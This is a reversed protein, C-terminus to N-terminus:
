ETTLFRFSNKDLAMKDINDKDPIFGGKILAARRPNITYDSHHTHFVYYYHGTEDKFFDGHGPGNQRVMDKDLIPNGSYKKWPGLPNPSTAYGLAYYISKFGNASYFLYYLGEHELVTPGETVTWSKGALNEWTQGHDVANVCSTLTNPKIDTLDDKLAAVYIRNGNHLRVFYLYKDGNDDIFVFPDIAKDSTSIPKKVEQVFPGLPGDSKAIAMHENATYAMYFKDQYTFVQPAWFGHTGYVDEKRLAFGDSVGAPGNWNELDTSTYVIFGENVTHTGYLYYTGEYYFITPDALFIQERAIPSTESQDVTVGDKNENLCSVSFFCLIAIIIGIIYYGDMKNLQKILQLGKLEAIVKSKM